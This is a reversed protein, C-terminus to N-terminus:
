LKPYNPRILGKKTSLSNDEKNVQNDHVCLTIADEFQKSLIEQM